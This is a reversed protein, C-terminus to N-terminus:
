INCAAAGVEYFEKKAFKPSILALSLASAALGTLM